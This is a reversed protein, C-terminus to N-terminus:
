GPSDSVVKKARLLHKCFKDYRLDCLLLNEWCRKTERKIKTEDRSRNRCQINWWLRNWSATHYSLVLLKYNFEMLRGSEMLRGTILIGLFLQQFSYSILSSATM